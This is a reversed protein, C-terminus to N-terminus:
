VIYIIWVDDSPIRVGSQWEVCDKNVRARIWIKEAGYALTSNAGVKLSKLDSKRVEISHAELIPYCSMVPWERWLVPNPIKVDSSQLELLEESVLNDWDVVLNGVSPGASFQASFPVRQLGQAFHESLIQTTIDPHVELGLERSARLMQEAVLEYDALKLAGVGGTLLGLAPALLKGPGQKDLATSSIGEDTIKGSTVILQRLLQDRADWKIKDPNISRGSAVGNEYYGPFLAHRILVELVGAYDHADIDPSPPWAEMLSLVTPWLATKTSACLDSSIKSLLREMEIVPASVNGSQAGGPLGNAFSVMLAAGTSAAVNLQGRRKMEVQVLKPVLMEKAATRAFPAWEAGYKTEAMIVDELILAEIGVPTLAILGALAWALNGALSLAFPMLDAAQREVDFKTLNVDTIAQLYGIARFTEIQNIDDSVSKVIFEIEGGSANKAVGLSHEAADRADLLAASERAGVINKDVKGEAGLKEVEALEAQADTLTPKPKRQVQLSNVAPAFLSAAQGSGARMAAQDATPGEGDKADALRRNNPPMAGSQQVVHALEHALLQRGARTNPTHQGGAFILHRGVTYALASMEQASRAALSDTHLRVSGFDRGFRPEFFARSAPDLQEGQSRMVQHVIPPATMRDLGVAGGFEKRAIKKHEDDEKKCNACNRRVVPNGQSTMAAAPEPMRMVQEAVRDAERELPDDVAGIELKAQIPRPLPSSAPHQSVDRSAQESRGFLPVDGLSFPITGIDSGPTAKHHASHSAVALTADRKRSQETARQQPVVVHSAV